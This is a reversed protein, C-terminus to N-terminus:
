AAEVHALSPGVEPELQYSGTGLGLNLYAVGIAVAVGVIAAPRLYIVLTFLGAWVRVYNPQM